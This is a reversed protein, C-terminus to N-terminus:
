VSVCFGRRPTGCRRRRALDSWVCVRGVRLVKTFGDVFSSREYAFDMLLV